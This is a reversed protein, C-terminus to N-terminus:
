RLPAADRFCHFFNETTYGALEELSEGRLDAIFQAVDKVFAPQNEKGRHPVPALFPSDTEVLLRDQPIKKVVDRLADANRFTVIGSISIYFGLDIAAKAMEWSETFCHLVGGCKEAHGNSLINLTDQRADRTHIILPKNVAVAVEVQSEFCQLQLAKNDPSYFYDLGTEGIAVVKDTTAFRRLDDASVGNEVDLPHVGASLFVNNFPSMRQQMAEFEQLRVNVCLFHSIGLAQADSLVANLSAEDPAVKLRDLHCHSDVLM